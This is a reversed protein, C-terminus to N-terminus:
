ATVQHAFLRRDVVSALNRQHFINEWETPELGPALCSALPLDLLSTGQGDKDIAAQSFDALRHLYHIAYDVIPGERADGHSTLLRKRGLRRLRQLAQAHLDPSSYALYVINGVISDAAHVLDAEAIDIALTSMTHGPNHFIELTHAGWRLTMRDSILISPEVFHREEEATRFRESTFTHLYNQHAIIEAGPFSRLAAMHDSFYHSAIIFRVRAQLRDEVFLRLRGADDASGVADILVAERGRLLVLSNAEYTDGVFVHADESLRTVHM